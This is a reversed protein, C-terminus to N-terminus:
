KIVREMQRPGEDKIPMEKVTEAKRRKTERNLEERTLSKLITSGSIIFLLAKLRTEQGVRVNLPLM